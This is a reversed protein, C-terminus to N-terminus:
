NEYKAVERYIWWSPQYLGWWAQLLFPHVVGTARDSASFSQELGRTKPTKKGMWCCMMFMYVLLNEQLKDIMIMVLHAMTLVHTGKWEIWGMTQLGALRPNPMADAQLTDFCPNREWLLIQWWDMKMHIKTYYKWCEWYPISSCKGYTKVMSCRNLLGSFSLVTFFGLFGM